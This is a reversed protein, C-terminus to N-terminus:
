GGVYICNHQEQRWLSFAQDLVGRQSQCSTVGHVCASDLVYPSHRESRAKCLASSDGDPLGIVRADPFQIDLNMVEDTLFGFFQVDAQSSGSRLLRDVAVATNVYDQFFSLTSIHYGAPMNLADSAKTLAKVADYGLVDCFPVSTMRISYSRLPVDHPIHAGKGRVRSGPVAPHWTSAFPSAKHPRVEYVLKKIEDDTPMVWGAKTPWPWESAAHVTLEVDWDIYLLLGVNQNALCRVSIGNTAFEHMDEQSQGGFDLDPDTSLTGLLEQALLHRFLQPCYMRHCGLLPAVAGWYVKIHTCLDGVDGLALADLYTSCGTPNQVSAAFSLVEAQRRERGCYLEALDGSEPCEFHDRIDFADM